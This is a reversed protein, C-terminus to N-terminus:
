ELTTRTVLKPNYLKKIAIQVNYHLRVNPHSEMLSHYWTLQNHSNCLLYNFSPHYAQLAPGEFM